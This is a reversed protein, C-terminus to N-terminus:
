RRGKRDGVRHRKFVDALSESKEKARRFRGLVGGVGCGKCKKRGEVDVGQKEVRREGEKEEVKNRIECAKLKGTECWFGGEM